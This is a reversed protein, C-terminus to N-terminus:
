DGTGTRSKHLEMHRKEAHAAFEDPTMRSRYSESGLSQTGPEDQLEAAAKKVAASLKQGFSRPLPRTAPAPKVLAVIKLGLCLNLVLLGLIAIEM